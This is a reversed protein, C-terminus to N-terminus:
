SGRGRPGGGPRPGPLPAEGDLLGAETLATRGSASLGSLRETKIWIKGMARPEKGSLKLRAAEPGDLAKPSLGHWSPMLAEDVTRRILVPLALEGATALGLALLAAFALARYPAVYRLIRRMVRPDYEKTIEDSDFFDAM